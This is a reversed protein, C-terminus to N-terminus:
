TRASSLARQLKTGAPFIQQSLQKLGGGVAWHLTKTSRASRATKVTWHISTTEMITTDITIFAVPSIPTRVSIGTTSLIWTGTRTRLTIVRTMSFLETNRPQSISEETGTVAQLSFDRWSVNAFMQNIDEGDGNEAIGNNTAPDDFERFYLRQQGKSDSVTGSILLDLGSTFQKGYSFRGRYSDFSSRQTSLQLGDLDSGRKTIVNIVGFFANTGYLSSSPGRIIEIRDILDVDIPFEAGIQASSYVNDSMRHGDVLLLVRTNFDGPRAFGRAGLDSYSRTYNNYFGRVSGIAAALTVYGYRKIEEATIISVSAPAETVKQLFKSAGFVSHVKIKMLDELSLNSLDQQQDKQQQVPEQNVPPTSEQAYAGISLMLSLTIFHFVLKLYRRM